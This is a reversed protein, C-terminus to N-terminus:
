PSGAHIEERQHTKKGGKILWVIDSSVGRGEGRFLWNNKRRKLNNIQLSEGYEPLGRNFTHVTILPLHRANCKHEVGSEQSFLTGRDPQFFMIKNMLTLKTSPKWFVSFYQPVDAAEVQEVVTFWTMTCSWFLLMNSHTQACCSAQGALACVISQLWRIQKESHPVNNLFIFLKFFSGFIFSIIFHLMNRNKKIWAKWKYLIETNQSNCKPSSIKVYLNSASVVFHWCCMALVCSTMKTDAQIHIDTQDWSISMHWTSDLCM